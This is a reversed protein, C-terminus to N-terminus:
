GRQRNGMEVTMWELSDITTKADPRSRTIGFPSSCVFKRRLLRPSYMPRIWGSPTVTSDCVTGRNGRWDVFMEYPSPLRESDVSNTPTSADAFQSTGRSPDNAFDQVTSENSSEGHVVASPGNPILIAPTTTSTGPKVARITSTSPPVSPSNVDATSAIFTRAPFKASPSYRIRVSISDTTGNTSKPPNPPSNRSIVAGYRSLVFSVEISFKVMDTVASTVMGSPSHVIPNALLSPPRNCNSPTM